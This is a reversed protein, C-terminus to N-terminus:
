DCDYNDDILKNENENDAIKWFSRFPPINKAMQLVLASFQAIVFDPWATTPSVVFYFIIEYILIM